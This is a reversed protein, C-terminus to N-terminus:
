PRFMGFLLTYSPVQAARGGLKYIKSNKKLKMFGLTLVTAVVGALLLGPASQQFVDFLM